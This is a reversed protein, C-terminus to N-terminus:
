RINMSERHMWFELAKKLAFSFKNYQRIALGRSEAPIEVTAVETPIIQKLRRM